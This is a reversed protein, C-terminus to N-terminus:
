EDKKKKMLHYSALGAVFFIGMKFFNVILEVYSTQIAEFTKGSPSWGVALIVLAVWLVGM